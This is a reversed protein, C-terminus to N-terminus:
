RDCRVLAPKHTKYIENVQTNVIAQNLSSEPLSLYSAKTEVLYIKNKVGCQKLRLKQEAFRIFTCIFLYIFKDAVDRGSRRNYNFDLLIMKLPIQILSRKDTWLFQDKSVLDSILCLAVIAIVIGSGQRKFKDPSNTDPPNSKVSRYRRFVKYMNNPFIETNIKSKKLWTENLIDIDPKQGFLTDRFEKLQSVYM